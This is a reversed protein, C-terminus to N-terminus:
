PSPLWCTVIIGGGERALFSIRGGHAELIERCLPLGLGSGTKKTSYFPLCLTRLTEDDMGQGRDLVQVFTGGDETDKIRVQIQPEGDSAETANRLLNILVQRMQAPDFYGPRSPLRGVVQVDPVGELSNLFETWVM